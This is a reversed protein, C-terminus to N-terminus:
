QVAVLPMHCPSQAQWHAPGPIHVTKVRRAGNANPPKTGPRQIGRGGAKRRCVPPGAPNLCVPPVCGGRSAAAPGGAGEFGAGHRVFGFIANPPKNTCHACPAAGDSAPAGGAGWRRNRAATGGAAGQLGSFALLGAATPLKQSKQCFILGILWSAAKPSNRSRGNEDM